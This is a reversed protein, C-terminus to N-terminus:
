EKIQLSNLMNIVYKASKKKAWRIVVDQTSSYMGNIMIIVTEFKIPTNQKRLNARSLTTSM